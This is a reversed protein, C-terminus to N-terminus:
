AEAVPQQFNPATKPCLNASFNRPYIQLSLPPELNIFVRSVRIQRLHCLVVFQRTSTLMSYFMIGSCVRSLCFIYLFFYIELGRSDSFSIGFQIASLM